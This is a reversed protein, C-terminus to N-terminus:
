FHYSTDKGREKLFEIVSSLSEVDQRHMEREEELEWKLREELTMNCFEKNM